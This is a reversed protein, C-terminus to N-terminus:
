WIRAIEHADLAEAASLIPTGEVGAQAVLM